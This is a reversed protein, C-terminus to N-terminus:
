IIQEKVIECWADDFGARTSSDNNETVTTLEFSNFPSKQFKITTIYGMGVIVGTCPRVNDFFGENVFGNVGISTELNKSSYIECYAMIMADPNDYNMLKFNYRFISAASGSNEKLSEIESELSEIKATNAAINERAIGDKIRYGNIHCICKETM